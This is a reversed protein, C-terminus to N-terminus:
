KKVLFMTARFFVSFMSAFLYVFICAFLFEVVANM